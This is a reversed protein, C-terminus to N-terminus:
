LKEDITGSCICAHMGDLFRADDVGGDVDNGYGGALVVRAQLGQASVHAEVVLGGGDLFVDFGKPLTHRPRNVAM